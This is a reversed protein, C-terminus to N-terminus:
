KNGQCIYGKELVMVAAVDRASTSSSLLGATSSCTASTRYMITGTGTPATGVATTFDFTYASGSPDQWTEGGATMYTPVFGGANTMGAASAAPYNGSNNGAYSELQALMRGLDSKRQTDRRSKQLSPLAFFVMALIMAAIALVLVVEIITFGKDSQQKVRM